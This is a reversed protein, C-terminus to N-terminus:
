SAAATKAKSEKVWKAVAAIAALGLRGHVKDCGDNCIGRCHYLGCISVGNEKPMLDTFRRVLDWEAFSSLALGSHLSPNQVSKRKPASPISPDGSGRKNVATSRNGAPFVPGVLDSTNQLRLHQQLADFGLLSSEIADVNAADACSSIYEQVRIDITALLREYFRDHKTALREVTTM